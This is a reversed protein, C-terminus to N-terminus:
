GSLEANHDRCGWDHLKNKLDQIRENALCWLLRPDEKKNSSEIERVIPRNSDNNRARENLDPGIQHTMELLIVAKGMDLLVEASELGVYGGGVIAVREGAFSPNVIIQEALFQNKSNGGANKPVV